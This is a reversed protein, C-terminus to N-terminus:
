LFTQTPQTLFVVDPFMGSSCLMCCLQTNLTSCLNQSTKTKVGELTVWEFREGVFHRPGGSSTHACLHANRRRVLHEVRRMASLMSQVHKSTRRSLMNRRVSREESPSSDTGRQSFGAMANGCSTM